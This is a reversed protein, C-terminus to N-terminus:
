VYVMHEVPRIECPNFKLKFKHLAFTESGGLNCQSIGHRQRLIRFFQYLALESLGNYHKWDCINVYLGATRKAILGAMFIGSAQNDIKLLYNFGQTDPYRLLNNYVEIRKHQGAGWRSVVEMAQDLQQPYREPDYLSFRVDSDPFYNYFRNLGLRVKSYLPSEIANENLYRLDLIVEPYTSDDHPYQAHWPYESMTILNFKSTWDRIEGALHKIYVPKGSLEKLLPLLSKLANYPAGGPCVVVYHGQHAGISVLEDKFQYKYGMLGLGRCAQIVYAWNCAYGSNGKKSFYWRFQGQDATTIHSIGSSITAISSELDISQVLSHAM